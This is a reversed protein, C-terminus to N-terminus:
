EKGLMRALTSVADNSEDPDDKDVEKVQVPASWGAKTKLGFEILKSDGADVKEKFRDGLWKDFQYRSEEIVDKYKYIFSSLAKPCEAMSLCSDHIKTLSVGASIGERIRTEIRKSYQYTIPAM